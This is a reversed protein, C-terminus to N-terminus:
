QNLSPSAQDTRQRDDEVRHTRMHSNYEEVAAMLSEDRLTHSADQNHRNHSHTDCSKSTDKLTSSLYFFMTLNLAILVLLGLILWSVTKSTGKKQTTAISPRQQHANVHEFSYRPQDQSPQPSYRVPRLALPSMQLDNGHEFRHNSQSSYQPSQQGFINGRAPMVLPSMQPSRRPANANYDHQSSSFQNTYLPSQFPSSTNYTEVKANRGGGRSGVADPSPNPM